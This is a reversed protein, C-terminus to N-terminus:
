LETIHFNRRLQRLGKGLLHSGLKLLFHSLVTM